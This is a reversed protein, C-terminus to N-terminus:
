RRPLGFFDFVAYLNLEGNVLFHDIPRTEGGAAKLADLTEHTEAWWLFALADPNTKAVRRFAALENRFAAADAEAQKLQEDRYQAAEQALRYKLAAAQSLRQDREQLAQTERTGMTTQAQDVAEFASKVEDPAAILAVSARQVRIGLRLEPLREGLRDMVWAPLMASGTRLAQDITRAATWEAAAAEAARALTTDVQERHVVYNDLDEDTEGIAYDIVLQVNVLNQDGTLMQGTPTGAVGVTEPEYGVRIQRVTRVPVRDVRDVGWPLGLGLGPGPRAVVRGFRRVVAREDPGVQYVGTALYAGALLLLLYRLKPM